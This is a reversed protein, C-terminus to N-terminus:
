KYENIQSLGVSNGSALHLLINMSNRDVSVSEVTNFLRVPVGAQQGGSFAQVTFSYQGAPLPNEEADLGQWSFNRAGPEATGLDIVDVAEGSANRVTLTVANAANSFEISGNVPSGPEFSASVSETLVERGVLSAAQMAQASFLSSAIGNFSSDLGDIGSVMSFQAIQSLFESNDAPNTPDQNKMQTVLLKMFDEQGLKSGATEQDSVKTTGNGLIQQINM